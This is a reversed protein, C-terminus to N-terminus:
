NIFKTKFLSIRLDYFLYNLDKNYCVIVDHKVEINIRSMSKKINYLYGPIKINSYNNTSNFNM